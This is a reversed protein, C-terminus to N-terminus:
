TFVDDRNNKQIREFDQNQGATPIALLAEAFSKKQPPLLAAELILRHKAEASIGELGAQAKLAKVVDDGINRVVLNAM